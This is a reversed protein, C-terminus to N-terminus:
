FPVVEISGVSYGADEVAKRLSEDPVNESVLILAENRELSVEEVKVGSVSALAKQVHQVCNECMMGDISLRKQLVGDPIGGYTYGAKEIAAKLAPEPVERTLAVEATGAEVSAKAEKVGPLAELAEQVHLACNECMMGDVKLVLNRIVPEEAPKEKGESPLPCSTLSALAEPDMEVRKHKRDWRPNYLPFLNIRLANLVVTVSSLAMAAAGYWPKMHVLWENGTPAFVGAAIPIMVLNYFFAWFLNEKINTLTHRSLRVSAAADRLSSKMLVVDASDIAIDSGAGIAIGIDAQTLAPADNIGDGVMAVRGLKQLKRIVEQKGSPLVDSVYYKLGLQRAIAGATRANDGTLMVPVVNMAEFEEIAAKSDEKLVDSVAVLGLMKGDSEFFLPTKGDDAFKEGAEKLSAPLSKKEEFFAANAGYSLRGSVLAKVGHGPLAQFSSLSLLAVNEKKAEEQIAKALPHESNRELAYAVELLEQRSVGEFPVIDTVVPKGQTLTGTKDLVVFDTKGTEELASATKFLIGNKAGKGSGVMIAVPTALGLACPCAIVLVSIAKNVAYTVYSQGPDFASVFSKGFLIWGLFVLLAVALIVPVFVGSVRDAIRSIKTKTGSATEVMQVIQNLTTEDGVRTAEVTLAGEENITAASVPSGPKKDVPMSEGTLASENVSSTGERVVGDVPFSEGPKVLFLDGKRVESADITVEKGDRLVHATKPALDLLARVASTTKGKSYSELTKGITILTPVMGSTEFCLNMTDSLIHNWDSTTANVPAYFSMLILVAVSYLYAIGSGLAVLTDMNPGGHLLTKLGSVFFRRNLLLILSSLFLETLGLLFPRERLAGINWGMSYGMSFYFLPVLLLLSAILIKLLKPTEKDELEEKELQNRDKKTGSQPNLKSLSAGYGAKKVAEEIRTPSAPADYSVLMSNTLLNVSVSRVGEVKEVAKTVHAQCSACTMGQVDYKENEVM